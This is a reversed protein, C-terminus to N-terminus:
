AATVCRTRSILDPLSLRFPLAALAFGLGGGLLSLYIGLWRLSANKLAM